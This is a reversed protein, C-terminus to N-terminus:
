APAGARQAQKGRLMDWIFLSEAAWIAVFCVLQAPKLTEGFVFMGLLFVMTPSIFQLFGIVTYPLARAAIAFLLLPVATMPGGAVIAASELMDRGMALGPGALQSWGLFGLAIPALLMSEVTLGALSGAAVTKRLLGYTGFTLACALSLWLTTLAGAALASVGIAAVAVAGWQRRTLREGLFILGLLMMVLPLIYYGLSAAYVHGSQIAWVYLCWNVAILGASALLTLMARRNSFVASLEAWGSLLAIFALCMPLTFLTRWAVYEFLPVKSVLLLYLPMSGWVAHSGLAFALARGHSISSQEMPGPTLSM